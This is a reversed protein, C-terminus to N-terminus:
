GKIILRYYWNALIERLFAPYYFITHRSRSANAHVRMGLRRAVLLVRMVHFDSTLFAFHEPEKGTKERILAASFKLNELTTAAKPEPWIRNEAIGMDVLANAICQAETVTADPNKGGTPICVADPHATLYRYAGEIRERLMISPESGNVMTGLVVLYPSAEGTPVPRTMRYGTISAACLLALGGLVLVYLLIHEM